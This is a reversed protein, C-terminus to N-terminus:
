GTNTALARRIDAIRSGLDATQAAAKATIHVVELAMAQAYVWQRGAPTRGHWSTAVDLTGQIWAGLDLLLGDKQYRDRAGDAGTQWAAPDGLVDRAPQLAARVDVLPKPPEPPAAPETPQNEPDM